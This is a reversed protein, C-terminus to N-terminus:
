IDLPLFSHYLFEVGRYEEDIHYHGCYWKKFQLGDNCLSEFWMETSKDVTNQDIGPLFTYEPIAFYPCTHTLVIDVKYNNNRLNRYANKKNSDTPQEDEFWIYRHRLRYFKDVSYAGGCCFIKKDNITYIEGDKVFFINPYKEECYMDGGWMKKVTYVDTLNEHNADHNGRLCVIKANLKSLYKKKDDDLGYRLHWNLGVDGLIFIYLEDDPNQQSIFFKIKDYQGHCDGTVFYKTM